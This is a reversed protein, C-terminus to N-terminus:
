HGFLTGARMKKFQAHDYYYGESGDGYIPPLEWDNSTPFVLSSSGDAFFLNLGGRNNQKHVQAVTSKGDKMCATLSAAGFCNDQIVFEAALVVRSLPAPIGKLRPYYYSLAENGSYGYWREKQKVSNRTDARYTKMCYLRAPLYRPVLWADWNPRGTETSGSPKGDWEPLKGEDAIAALAAMGYARLNGLCRVADSRDRLQFLAPLLLAVLIAIAGVSLILEAVTFALLFRLCRPRERM